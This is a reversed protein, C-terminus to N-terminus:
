RPRAARECRTWSPPVFRCAGDCIFLTDNRAFISSAPVPELPPRANPARSIWLGLWIIGASLLFAALAGVLLPKM